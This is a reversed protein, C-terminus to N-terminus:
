SRLVYALTQQASVRHLSGVDTMEGGVQGVLTPATGKWILCCPKHIVFGRSSAVRLLFVVLVIRSLGWLLNM